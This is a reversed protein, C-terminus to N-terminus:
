SSSAAATPSSWRWGSRRGGRQGSRSRFPIKAVSVVEAQVTVYEDDRLDTLPTLVGREVYRRPYHLLLDGCTRLDLGKELVKATKDGVIARLPDRMTPM